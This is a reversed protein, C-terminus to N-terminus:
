IDWFDIHSYPINERWVWWKSEIDKNLAANQTHLDLLIGNDGFIEKDLTDFYGSLLPSSTAVNRAQYRLARSQSDIPLNSILSLIENKELESPNLSPATYFRKILSLPKKPLLKKLSRLLKLTKIRM